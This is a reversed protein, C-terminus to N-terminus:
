IPRIAAEKLPRNRREDQRQNLSTPKTPRHGVGSIATCPQALSTRTTAQLAHLGDGWPPLTQKRFAIIAAEEEAAPATSLPTGPSAAADHLFSRKRRQGRNQPEFRIAARIARATAASGPPAQGM